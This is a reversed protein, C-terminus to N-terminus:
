RGFASKGPLMSAPDAIRRHWAEVLSFLGFLMLGAAVIMQFTEPL